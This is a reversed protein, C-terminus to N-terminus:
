GWFGSLGRGWCWVIWSVFVSCSKVGLWVKSSMLVFRSCAFGVM